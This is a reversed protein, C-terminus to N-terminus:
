GQQHPLHPGGPEVPLPLDEEILETERYVEALPVRRFITRLSRYAYLNYLLSFAAACALFIGFDRYINSRVEPDPFIKFAALALLGSGILQPLPFLPSRYPRRAGPERLRLIAQSLHILFYASAWGLVGALILEIFTTATGLDIALNVIIPAASVVVIGVAPARTAPVLYGFIRPLQGTLSMGYLIRPVGAAVANLTSLTAAVSLLGMWWKGGEGFIAIAVDMNAVPSFEALRESPVYRAAALGYLIVPVAVLTLGLFM